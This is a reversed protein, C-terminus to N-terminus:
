EPSIVEGIEPLHILQLQKKGEKSVMAREFYFKVPKATQLYPSDQLHYHLVPETANGSCGCQALVQGRAIRDGVKVRISGQKLFALVSYEKSAHQIVIANGIQAYPNRTGPSNEFIGDIVEVVTGNAPAIIEKGYGIYDERTKGDTKFRLGSADTGSFEYTYQQQLLNRQAAGERIEGGAIVAWPGTFPLYLETQQKDLVIPIAPQKVPSSSSASSPAVNKSIETYTSSDSSSKQPVPNASSTISTQASPTNTETTNQSNPQSESAIHTTFLFGKIKGQDDIYLTLDQIGRESYMICIAQDTARVQPPDVKLVKGFTDLNNKFFYTTKFLPFAVSMGKDYERVIAEYDQNNMANVLRNIIKTFRDNGQQQAFLPQTIGFFFFLIIIMRRMMSGKM